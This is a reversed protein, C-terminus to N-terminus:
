GRRGVGAENSAIDKFELSLHLILLLYSSPSSFIAALHFLLMTCSSGRLVNLVIVKLRRLVNLLFIHFNVDPAIAIRLLPMSTWTRGTKCLRFRQAMEFWTTFSNVFRPKAM